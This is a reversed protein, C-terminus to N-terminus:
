KYLKISKAINTDYLSNLLSDSSICGWVLSNSTESIYANRKEASEKSIRTQNSTSIYLLLNAQSAAVLEEPLQKYLQRGLVFIIKANRKHFLHLIDKEIKSQFESIIVTNSLDISTAWDNCRLVASSSVTRSCLSATKHLSLLEKNGLYTLKMQKEMKRLQASLKENGTYRM